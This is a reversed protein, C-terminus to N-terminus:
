SHSSPRHCVHHIPGGIRWWGTMFCCPLVGEQIVSIVFSAWSKGKQRVSWFLHAIASVFMPSVSRLLSSTGLARLEQLLLPVSCFHRKLVPICCGLRWSVLCSLVKKESYKPAFGIQLALVEVLALFTIQSDSVMRFRFSPALPFAVGRQEQTVVVFDYTAIDRWASLMIRTPNHSCLSLSSATGVSSRYNHRCPRAWM